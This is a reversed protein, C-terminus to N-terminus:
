HKKTKTKKMGTQYKNLTIFSELNSHILFDDIIVYDGGNHGQAVGERQKINKVDFVGFLHCKGQFKDLPLGCM